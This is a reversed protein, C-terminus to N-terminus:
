LGLSIVSERLGLGIGSGKLSLGTVSEWLSLDIGAGFGWFLVLGGGLARVLVLIGCMRIGLGLDILSGRLNLGILAWM